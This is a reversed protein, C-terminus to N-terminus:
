GERETKHKEINREEVTVPKVLESALDDPSCDMAFVEEKERRTPEYSPPLLEITRKNTM